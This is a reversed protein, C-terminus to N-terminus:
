HYDAIEANHPGDDRWEFCVRWQDNIRIGYQGQRNGSLAKFRNSPLRILSELTDAADLIRLRKEAQRAFAQFKRVRKGQYLQKTQKDRFSQIM